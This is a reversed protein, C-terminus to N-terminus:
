SGPSPRGQSSAAKSPTSYRPNALMDEIEATSSGVVVVGRIADDDTIPAAYLRIEKGDPTQDTIFLSEGALAQEQLARIQPIDLDDGWGQILNGHGDYIRMLDVSQDNFSFEDDDQFDISDDEVQLSNERQAAGLVLSDDLGQYLNNSLMLYAAVAFILLLVVLIVLYWITLRFKISKTFRM